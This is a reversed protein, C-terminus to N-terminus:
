KGLAKRRDIIQSKADGWSVTDILKNKRLGTQEKLWKLENEDRIADDGNKYEEAIEYMLQLLEEDGEQVISILKEKINLYDM